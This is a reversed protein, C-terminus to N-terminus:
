EPTFWFHQKESTSINSADILTISSSFEAM